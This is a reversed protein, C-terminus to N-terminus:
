FVGGCMIVHGSNLGTDDDRPVFIRSHYHLKAVYKQVALLLQSIIQEVGFGKARDRKREASFVQFSQYYLM